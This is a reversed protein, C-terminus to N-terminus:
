RFCQKTGCVTQKVGNDADGTVSAVIMNINLYFFDSPDIYNLTEKGRVAMVQGFRVMGIFAYSLAVFQKNSEMTLTVQSKLLLM